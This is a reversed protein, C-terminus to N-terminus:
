LSSLWQLLVDAPYGPYRGKGGICQLHFGAPILLLTLGWLLVQTYWPIGLRLEIWGFVQDQVSDGCAMFVTVAVAAILGSFMLWFGWIECTTPEIM